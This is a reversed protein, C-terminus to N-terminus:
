HALSYSSPLHVIFAFLYLSPSNYEIMIYPFPSCLSLNHFFSSNSNYYYTKQQFYYNQSSVAITRISIDPHLVICLSIVHQNTTATPPNTTITFPLAQQVAELLSINTTNHFITTHDDQRSNSNLPVVFNLISWAWPVNMPSHILKFWSSILFTAFLTNPTSLSWNHIINWIKQAFFFEFEDAFFIWFKSIQGELM